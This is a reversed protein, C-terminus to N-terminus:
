SAIGMRGPRVLRQTATIAVVSGVLLGTGLPLGALVFTAVGGIVAATQGSRETVAPRLMSTILIAGALELRWGDPLLPGIAMGVTIAVVWVAVLPLTCGFWYRRFRAPTEDLPVNEDVMVFSQDIVLHAGVWRFWSPQARFRPALAASYLLLRSSLVLATFLAAAAGGGEVLTSIMAFQAAGSLLLPGAIWGSMGALPSTSVAAGLALGIPALALAVPKADKLGARLASSLDLTADINTDISM